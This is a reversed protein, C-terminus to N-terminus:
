LEEEIKKVIKHAPIQLADSLKFIVELTPVQRGNEIDSLHGRTMGALEAMVKQTYNKETRLKSIIEGVTHPSIRKETNKDTKM